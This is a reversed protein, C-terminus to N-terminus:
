VQHALRSMLRTMLTILLAMMLSLGQVLGRALELPIGQALPVPKFGALDRSFETPGRSGQWRASVWQIWSLHLKKERQRFFVCLVAMMRGFRVVLKLSQHYQLTLM